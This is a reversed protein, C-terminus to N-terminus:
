VVGVRSRGQSKALYLARDAEEVLTEGHMATAYIDSSWTDCGVQSLSFRSSDQGCPLNTKSDARATDAAM